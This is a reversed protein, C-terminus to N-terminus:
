TRRGRLHLFYAVAQADELKPVRAVDEDSPRPEEVREVAFGSDTLLNIWDSIPRTFRPIRFPTVSARVEPPAASFTWEQPDGELRAFYGGVELAVTRGAADRVKRRHPTVFCPHEISAQLFGGPRLVRHAEALVQPLAPMDMLSMFATVFDFVGDLFPLGSASAQVHGIRGGHAPTAAAHRLFAGSIDVATMRAGRAAVLRTNHGEGCGLDLGRQGHVDPLMALFAPTNLHDRYVDYGARSLRTWAEANGEWCRRVERDEVPM